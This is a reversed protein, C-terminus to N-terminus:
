TAGIRDDPKHQLFGAALEPAWDIDSFQVCGLDTGDSSAHRDSTGRIAIM